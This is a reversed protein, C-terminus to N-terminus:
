PYGRGTVLINELPSIINTERCVNYNGKEKRAM